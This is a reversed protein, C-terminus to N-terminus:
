PGFTLRPLNVSVLKGLWLDNLTGEVTLVNVFSVTLRSLLFLGAIVALCCVQGPSVHSVDLSRPSPEKMTAFFFTLIM